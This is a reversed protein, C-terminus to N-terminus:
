PDFIPVLIILYVNSFVAPGILFPCDLSVPSMLRLCVFCSWLMIHQVVSYALLCFYRLHSMFGGVFLQLYLCSGEYLCSSTFVHVRMCVVPSVSSGFISKHPYRLPCWLVSNLVYLCEFFLFELKSLFKCKWMYRLSICLM